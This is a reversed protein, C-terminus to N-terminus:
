IDNGGEEAKRIGVEAQQEGLWHFRRRLSWAATPSPVPVRLSTWTVWFGPVLKSTPMPWYNKSALAPLSLNRM